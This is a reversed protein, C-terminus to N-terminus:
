IQQADRHSHEIAALLDHKQRVYLRGKRWPNQLQLPKFDDRLCRERAGIVAVLCFNPLKDANYIPGEKGKLVVAMNLQKVVLDVVDRASTRSTVHLKLSTGNALGTEYAAYVQIIGTAPLVPPPQAASAASTASATAATVSTASQVDAKRAPRDSEESIFLNTATLSSRGQPMDSEFLQRKSRVVAGESMAARDLFSREATMPTVTVAPCSVTDAASCDSDSSLSHVSGIGGSPQYVVAAVTAATVTHTAPSGSMSSANVTTARKRHPQASAGSVSGASNPLPKSASQLLTDESRSPPLRPVIHQHHRQTNAASGHLQHHHHHMHKLPHVHQHHLPHQHLDLRQRHHDTTTAATAATSASGAEGASYYSNASNRSGNSDGSNKRLSSASTSMLQEIGSTASLYRSSLQSTAVACLQQESKSHEATLGAILGVTSGPSNTPGPWSGRGPSSKMLKADGRSPPQLHHQRQEVRSTDDAEDDDEDDATLGSIASAATAGARDLRDGVDSLETTEVAGKAVGEVIAAVATADAVAAGSASIFNFIERMNLGLYGCRDRAFAIVDMLWRVGKWVTNLSKTLEHLKALREKAAHVEVASFAGRHSHNALVTDLELICSLRAYKQIIGSHYTRLHIMEFAQLPLSLLDGRQLLLERQGPVACCSDAPPVVVLLSVDASLEIVELDFLRHGFAPEAAIDMHRFLRSATHTLSELFATQVETPGAAPREYASSVKNRRLFEWEEASIHPNDRLKCHPLVNPTKAPVVIQIQDVSSQMKLYGLYLGRALRVTSSQHYAIQEAISSLLIENINNDDPMAVIKKQVKNLPMWRSNLM